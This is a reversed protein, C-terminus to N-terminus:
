KKFVTSRVVNIRFDTVTGATATVKKLYTNVKAEAESLDNASEDILGIALAEETKYMQGVLVSQETKRRGIITSMVDM